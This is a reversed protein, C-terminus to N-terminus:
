ARRGGQGGGSGQRIVCGSRLPRHEACDNRRVAACGAASLRYTQRARRDAVPRADRRGAARRGAGAALCGCACAGAVIQRFREPRHHGPGCGKALSFSVDRVVPAGNARRRSVSLRSRWARQCACAANRQNRRGATCVLLQKLRAWSQRASVFGKWHAIALEIPALARGMMISSAIMIGGTAEQQIVLYAGVALMGSQLMLRLIKSITGLTGAVDSAAAHANLYDANVAYWREAIRGGFGMAQM